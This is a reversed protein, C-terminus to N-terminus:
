AAVTKEEVLVVEVKPATLPEVHYEVGPVTKILIEEPPVVAAFRPKTICARICCRATLYFLFIFIIPSILACIAHHMRPRPEEVVVIDVVTESVPAPAARGGLNDGLVHHLFCKCSPNLKDFHTVLCAQLEERKTSQTERHM